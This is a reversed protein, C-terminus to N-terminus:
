YVDWNLGDIYYDENYVKIVMNEWWYDRIVGCFESRVSYDVNGGM